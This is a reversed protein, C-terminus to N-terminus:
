GGLQRTTIFIDCVGTGAVSSTYVVRLATFPLQNLDILITDSAANVIPSGGIDLTVWNGPNQVKQVTEDVDYDTSAQIAFSGESDTTTTNIQYSANDAYRIVTVPSTFSSALSQASSVKYSKLLNKRAM